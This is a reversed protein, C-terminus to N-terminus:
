FVARPFDLFHDGGGGVVVLVLVVGLTRQDSPKAASLFSPPPM